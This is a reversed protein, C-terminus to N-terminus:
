NRTEEHHWLAVGWTLGFRVEVGTNGPQAGYRVAADVALRPIQQTTVVNAPLQGGSFIPQLSM